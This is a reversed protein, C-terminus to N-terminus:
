AARPVNSRALDECPLAICLTTGAGPTSEAWIQGGHQKIIARCIALGLGTGSKERADGSDVQAFREFITELKDTPIGRGEDRVRFLLEAGSREADLWVTGGQAPSFKIANALLNILVQLLRDRDGPLYADLPAVEITVRARDAPGRVSDAADLMLEQAALQGYQLFADGSEVRELDLMNNILRILRDSNNVAIELMHQGKDTQDGLLGSALLGLASRISTLPTRLEHSVISILEAKRRDAARRESVDRLTVVTGTVRGDQLMPASEYEIPFSSGDDQVCVDEGASGLTLFQIYSRIPQGVLDEELGPGLMQCAFPNALTIRGDPDLCVIGTPAFQIIEAILGEM